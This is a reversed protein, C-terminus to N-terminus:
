ARIWENRFIRYRVRCWNTQEWEVFPHNQVLHFLYATAMEIISSHLYDGGFQAEPQSLASRLLGEDRIGHSGGYLDIQNTHLDLADQFTLFYIEELKM